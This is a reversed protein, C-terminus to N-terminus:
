SELGASDCVGTVIELLEEIEGLLKDLLPLCVDAVTVFGLDLKLTTSLFSLFSGTVSARVGLLIDLRVKLLELIHVVAFVCGLGSEKTHLLVDCAAVGLHPIKRGVTYRLVLLNVV